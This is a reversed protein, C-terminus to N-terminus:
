IHGAHVGNFNFVQGFSEAIKGGYVMYVEFHLRPLQETEQAGISSSLGGGHSHDCSHDFGITAPGAYHAM